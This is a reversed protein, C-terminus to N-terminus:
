FLIRLSTGGVFALHDFYGKDSLIKLCFIQLFERTLNLRENFSMREKFQQRIFEIM